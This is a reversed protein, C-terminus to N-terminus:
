ELVSKQTELQLFSNLSLFITFSFWSSFKSVQGFINFKEAISSLKIRWMQVVLRWM